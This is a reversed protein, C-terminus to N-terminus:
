DRTLLHAALRFSILTILIPLGLPLVIEILIRGANDLPTFRALNIMLFYAAGIVTTSVIAPVRAPIAAGMLVGLAGMMIPELLLRLIASGLAALMGFRMLVPHDNLSFYIDYQIILLPLSALATGVLILTLNETHRWISAAVKSYLVQSVPRPIILLLDLTDNRREKVVSVAAAAGVYYLIQSYMVFGVPLLVLTVTVTPMLLTFLLPFIFTILVFGVQVLFVRVIAGLDPTLTKWYSGLHRRVIPNSRRAWEPLDRDIENRFTKNIRATAADFFAQDV